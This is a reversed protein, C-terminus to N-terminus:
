CSVGRQRVAEFLCIAAATSVNLSEAPAAMPIRAVLDCNERVLRRIGREEGGLVLASPGIMPVEYLSPEADAATGIRAVGAEGLLVLTRAVNTVTVVPVSEAAGSAVKYAAGSLGAARDKPVVVATVGAAEAIRLCAGLNRPDQVGDLVLLLPTGNAEALLTPLGREDLVPLARRKLVVGQHIGGEALRDLADRGTSQIPIGHRHAEEVVGSLGPDARGPEIFLGIVDLPRNALARRVAHHGWLIDFRKMPFVGPVVLVIFLRSSQISSHMHVKVFIAM